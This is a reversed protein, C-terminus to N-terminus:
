VNIFKEGRINKRFILIFSHGINFYFRRSKPGGLKVLKRQASQDWIVVDILVWGRKIALEIIKSHLNVYPIHNQVDRFDKVVWVNFGGDATVKFIKGMLEEINEQYDEWSLNGFDNENESYPKALDKGQNKYINKEYTYGAFNEAVKHLLDSYPPSTITLDISEEEIFRDLELCSENFIELEVDHITKDKSDVQDVGSLALEYFEPNLEFGVCNRNMLVSADATTGVGLFPDLVRDGPNTYIKLYHEVLDIPFAAGHQKRKSAIRGSYSIVSRSLQTWESGTLENLLKVKSKFEKPIRNYEKIIKAM